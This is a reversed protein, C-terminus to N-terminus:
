EKRNTDQLTKPQPSGHFICFAQAQHCGLSCGLAHPLSPSNDDELASNKLWPVLQRKQSSVEKKHTRHMAPHKLLM